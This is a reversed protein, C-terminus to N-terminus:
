SAQAGPCSHYRPGAPKREQEGAQQRHRRAVLPPLVPGDAAVVLSLRLRDINGLGHGSDRGAGRRHRLPHRHDAQEVLAVADRAVDLELGALRKADAVDHDAEPGALGGRRPLRLLEGAGEDLEVDAIAVAAELPDERAPEVLFRRREVDDLM